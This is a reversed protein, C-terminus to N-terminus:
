TKGGGGAVKRWVVRSERRPKKLLLKRVPRKNLSKGGSHRNEIFCGSEDEQIIM